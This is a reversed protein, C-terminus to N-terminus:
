IYFLYHRPNLCSSSQVLSLILSNSILQSIKLIMRDTRSPCPNSSSESDKGVESLKIQHYSQRNEKEQSLSWRSMAGNKNKPPPPYFLSHKSNVLSLWSMGWPTNSSMLFINAHTQRASTMQWIYKNNYFSVYPLLVPPSFPPLHSIVSFSPASSRRTEIQSICNTNGANRGVLLQGPFLGLELSNNLPYPGPFLAPTGFAWREGGMWRM